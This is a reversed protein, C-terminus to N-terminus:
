VCKIVTYVMMLLVTKQTQSQIQTHAATSLSTVVDASSTHTDHAVVRVYAAVTDYLNHSFLLTPKETFIIKVM